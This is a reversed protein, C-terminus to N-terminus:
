FNFRFLSDLCHIISLHFSVLGLCHGPCCRLLSPSHLLPILPVLMQNGSAVSLFAGEFRSAVAGVVESHGVRFGSM